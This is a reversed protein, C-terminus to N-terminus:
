RLRLRLIIFVTSILASQAAGVIRCEVGRHLKRQFPIFNRLQEVFLAAVM